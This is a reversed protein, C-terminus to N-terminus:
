RAIYKALFQDISDLRKQMADIVTAVDDLKQEIRALPNAITTRAPEASSEPILAIRTEFDEGRLPKLRVAQGDDRRPRPLPLTEDWNM